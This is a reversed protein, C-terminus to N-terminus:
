PRKELERAIREKLMETSGDTFAAAQAAELHRRFPYQDKLGEAGMAHLLAGLHRHAMGTAFVKARAAAGQVDLGADLKAAADYVVLRAAELDVSAEALAFRWAQHAHLPAGFTRRERGYAAVIDLANAVMGCCMAGVYIRAGNISTLARKFAQGPAFLMEDASAMYGDLHFAGTGMAPVASTIAPGRVFGARAADVVFCAIGAAGSGPVTQAYCVVVGTRTANIIWAKAGDLRWQGDVATARTSIAAFDSGAGPETLATCAAMKGAIIAPVYRNAVEPKANRALNDATNHSNVLAMALGFDAGALIETIRAKCSFPMASGGFAVPVSIGFLDARAAAASLSADIAPVHGRAFHPALERDVFRQASAVLADEINM